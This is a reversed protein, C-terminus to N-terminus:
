NNQGIHLNYSFIHVFTRKNTHRVHWFVLGLSLNFRHICIFHNNIWRKKKKLVDGWFSNQWILSCELSMKLLNTGLAYSLNLVCVCLPLSLSLQGSPLTTRQSWWIFHERVPIIESYLVASRSMDTGGASWYDSNGAPTLSDSSISTM